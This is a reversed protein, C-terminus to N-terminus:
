NQFTKDYTMCVVAIALLDNEGEAGRIDKGCSREDSQQKTIEACANFLAVSMAIVFYQKLYNLYGPLQEVAGRM